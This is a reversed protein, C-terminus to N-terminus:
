SFETTSGIPGFKIDKFYVTASAQQAEVDEPRGSDEPCPGRLNGPTGPDSGEPYNSDLWLMFAEHDDWLSMVLVMGRGMADGLARLGGKEGHDDVDGFAGKVDACFEDTISDYQQDVGPVLTVSNEIKEGDQVYFRRVEVLDGSDTGDSTIFQTVVTVERNSDVLKGPGYFDQDGLRYSAFDCGDKDCLGDYREDSDNDGCETGECRAVFEVMVM